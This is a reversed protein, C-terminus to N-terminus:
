LSRSLFVRGFGGGHRRQTSGSQAKRQPACGCRRYGRGINRLRVVVPQPLTENKAFLFQSVDTEGREMQEILFIDAATRLLDSNNNASATTAATTASTTAATPTAAPATAASTAAAAAPRPSTAAPASNRSRVAARDRRM